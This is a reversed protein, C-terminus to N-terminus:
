LDGAEEGKKWGDLELMETIPWKRIVTTGLETTYGAEFLEIGAWGIMTANDTCLTPKPFHFDTIGIEGLQKELMTRLHQNSSVGGSCVFTKIDLNHQKYALKIKSIMHQFITEQYRFLLRARIKDDKPIEENYYKKLTNKVQSNFSAFSYQLIDKRDWQNLMPEKVMIDVDAGWEERHLNLFKEAEKGIMNGTVGLERGVKDLADGAAIDVTDVLIEHDMLGRSLVVMTHGGSVLLSLFPYAPKAGNSEMRVVLLHGLMHNVGVIPVDWGISLGLGLQYGGVLSGIMGPGRTACILDPKWSHERVLDKVLVSINKRNHKAAETPVIGGDSSSDLTVKREEVIRPPKEVSFRDILTVCADDCSTEIALVKYSRVLSRFKLM